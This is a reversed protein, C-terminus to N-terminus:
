RPLSAYVIYDACRVHLSIILAILSIQAIVKPHHPNAPSAFALRLRECVGASPRLWRCLQRLLDAVNEPRTLRLQRNAIKRGNLRALNRRNPLQQLLIQFRVTHHSRARLARIRNAHRQALIRPLPQPHGFHHFAVFRLHRHHM